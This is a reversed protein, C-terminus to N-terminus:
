TYKRYFPIHDETPIPKIKSKNVMVFRFSEIRVHEPLIVHGEYESIAVFDGDYTRSPAYEVGDVEIIPDVPEFPPNPDIPKPPRLVSPLLALGLLGMAGKLFNRRNQENM